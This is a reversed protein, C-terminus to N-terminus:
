LTNQVNRSADVCRPIQERKRSASSPQPPPSSGEASQEAFGSVLVGM